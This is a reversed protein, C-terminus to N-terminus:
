RRLRQRVSAIADDIASMMYGI